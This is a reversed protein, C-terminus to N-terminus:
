GHSAELIKVRMPNKPHRVLRHRADLYIVARGVWEADDPDVTLNYWRGDYQGSMDIPECHCELDSVAAEDALEYALADLQAKTM